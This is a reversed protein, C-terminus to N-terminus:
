KMKGRVKRSKKWGVWEEGDGGEDKVEVKVVM